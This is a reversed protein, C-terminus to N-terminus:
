RKLKVYGNNYFVKGDIDKYELTWYYTGDAAEIGNMTLGNWKPIVKSSLHVMKGWRNYVSFHIYELNAMLYDLDEWVIEIPIFGDNIGDGNPTFIDPLTLDIPRCYEGITVSDYATCQFEDYVTAEYWGSEEATYVDGEFGDGWEVYSGNHTITIISREDAEEMSCISSTDASLSITPLQQVRVGITDAGWCGKSDIVLVSYENTSNVNISSSTETTNWLFSVSGTENEYEVDIDTDSGDCIVSDGELEVDLEPSAIIEVTDSNMCNNNDVV